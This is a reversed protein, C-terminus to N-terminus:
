MTATNLDAVHKKVMDKHGGLPMPFGLSLLLLHVDYGYYPKVANRTYDPNLFNNPYYQLKFSVTNKLAFGAFVYPMIAPTASSFWENFKAKQNRVVFTKEKYNVPLDAGAGLFLYSGKAAMNGIKIGVPAGINYTRRKVTLSNNEHEIFGINKLDIGTYVGLHRSLNFNFTLGVNIIYSFRLIGMSNATTNNAAPKQIMATSFIGADAGTGIYFKRITPLMKKISGSDTAPMKAYASSTIIGSILLLSISLSKKM